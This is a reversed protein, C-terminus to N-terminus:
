QVVLKVVGANKTSQDFIQILYNGKAITQPLNYPETHSKSNVTFSKSNLQKGSVDTLKAQYKGPTYNDLLLNVLHNTVPNPYVALRTEPESEEVFKPNTIHTAVDPVVQPVADKLADQLADKKDKIISLLNGNALDSANYVNTNGAIKEAVLKTIDFHYFGETSNSSNVLVMSGDEVAAGNTSYGRPLGQITGKYAASMDKTSIQFVNHNATILYLDGNKAAIIDGGYGGANHVSFNGNAPNDSLGGLDTITAKKNTTFQILHDSNNTLAYGNGDAGIVMRTIQNPIDGRNRLAGFQEDEFYYVQQTKAKLDIYRLQAIGMPTYYLREHKKDYACAASYTSFPKDLAAGPGIRVIYQIKGAESKGDMEKQVVFTRASPAPTVALTKNAVKMETLDLRAKSTVRTISKGQTTREVWDKERVAETTIGVPATAVNRTGEATITIVRDEPTVGKTATVRRIVRINNNETTIIVDGEQSFKAVQFNETKVDKKAVPKGTRANLPQTEESNKYVTKLEEGTAIDILRVETWNNHGKQSGTIAYVSTKQANAAMNISAIILTLLIKKKM